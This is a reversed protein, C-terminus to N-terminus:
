RKKESILIAVGDQKHNSNAHYRKGDKQKCGIQIKSDWTHKRYVAYLQVKNQKKLEIWNDGVKLHIKYNNINLPMITLALNVEAM